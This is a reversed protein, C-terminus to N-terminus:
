SILHLWNPMHNYDVKDFKLKLLIIFGIRLKFRSKALDTANQIMINM